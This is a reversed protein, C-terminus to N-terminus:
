LYPFQSLTISLINISPCFVNDPETWILPALFATNGIIVAAKIASPLDTTVRTGSRRSVRVM